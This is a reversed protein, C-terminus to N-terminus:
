APMWFRTWRLDGFAQEVRAIHQLYDAKTRAALGLFDQSQKYGHIISNFKARDPERRSQHAATYSALFEGSGPEGAIRPGKRWAYWYTVRKGSALKVVASHIGKLHVRM